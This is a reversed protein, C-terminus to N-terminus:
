SVPVFVAVGTLSTILKTGRKQYVQRPRKISRENDRKSLNHARETGGTWTIPGSGVVLKEYRWHTWRGQREWRATVMKKEPFDKGELLPPNHQSFTCLPILNIVFTKFKILALRQNFTQRSARFPRHSDRNSTPTHINTNLRYTQFLLLISKSSDWYHNRFRLFKEKIYYCFM